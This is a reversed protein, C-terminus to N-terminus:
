AFWERVADQGNFFRFEVFEYDNIQNVCFADQKFIEKIAEMSEAKAIIVGGGNTGPGAFLIWGEELGKATFAHHEKLLEMFTGSQKAKEANETFRGIVTYYKM